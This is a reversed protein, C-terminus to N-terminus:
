DIKLIHKYIEMTFVYFVCVCMDKGLSQVAGLLWPCARKRLRQKCCGEAHGVKSQMQCVGQFQMRSPMEIAVRERFPEKSM